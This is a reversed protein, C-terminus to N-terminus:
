YRFKIGTLSANPLSIASSRGNILSEPVKVNLNVIGMVIKRDGTVQVMQYLQQPRIGAQYNVYPDSFSIGTGTNITGPTNNPNPTMTFPVGQGTLNVIVDLGFYYKGNRGRIDDLERDPILACHALVPLEERILPKATPGAWASLPALVALLLIFAAVLGLRYTKDVM